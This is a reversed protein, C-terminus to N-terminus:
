HASDPIIIERRKEIEGIDELYKRVILIGVFEGQAGALPQLTIADMDSIDKLYEQLEYMIKLSGQISGQDQLPHTESFGDIQSIRDAFKPNFKMTCSGLPYTGIDVSFNMQSLRTYHRVVDFEAVDPLDIKKRLLSAPILDEIKDQVAPVKYDTGSHIDKILPEDYSAQHYGM